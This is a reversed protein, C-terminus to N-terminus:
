MKPCPQEGILSNARVLENRVTELITDFFRAGDFSRFMDAELWREMDDKFAAVDKMAEGEIVRSLGESVSNLDHGYLSAVKSVADRAEDGDPEVKLQRLLFWVDYIDRYKMHDRTAIAKVKDAWAFLLKPAPIPTKFGVAMDPIRTPLIGEAAYAEHLERPVRYFEAKVRVAGMRMPHEWRITFGTVLSGEKGKAQKVTINSGPLRLALRVLIGDRVKDMAESLDGAVDPSVLFDLDESYRDSSRAVRLSTGGHFVIQNARWQTADFLETLVAYHLLESIERNEDPTLATRKTLDM